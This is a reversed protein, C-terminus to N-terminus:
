KNAKIMKEIKLKSEQSLTEDANVPFDERGLNKSLDRILELQKKYYMCVECMSLHIKIKVRKIFSVRHDMMESILPSTNECDLKFFDCLSNKKKDM